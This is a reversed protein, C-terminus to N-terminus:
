FNLIKGAYLHLRSKLADTPEVCGEDIWQRIIAFVGGVVFAIDSQSAKIDNAKLEVMMLGEATKGFRSFIVQDFASPRVKQMFGINTALHDVLWALIHLKGKIPPASLIETEVEDLVREFGYDLLSTKNDFHVYFSSRAVDAKECIMRINIREWNQEHMLGFLAFWLERKTRIVRRDPSKKDLM